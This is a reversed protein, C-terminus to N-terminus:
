GSEESVIRDYEWNGDADKIGPLAGEGTHVLSREVTDPHYMLVAHHFSM